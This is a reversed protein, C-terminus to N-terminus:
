PDLVYESTVAISACALVQGESQMKQFNSMDQEHDRKAGFLFDEGTKLCQFIHNFEEDMGEVNKHVREVEARHEKEEKACSALTENVELVNKQLDRISNVMRELEVKVAQTENRAAALKHEQMKLELRAAHKSAELETAESLKEAQLRVNMDKMADIQMRLDSQRATARDIARRCERKAEKLIAENRQNDFEISNELGACAQHRKESVTQVLEKKESLRCQKDLVHKYEADRESLMNRLDLLKGELERREEQASALQMQIDESTSSSKDSESIVRQHEAEAKSIQNRLLKLEEKRQVIIEEVSTHHRSNRSVFGEHERIKESAAMAFEHEQDIQLLLKCQEKHEEELEFMVQGLQVEVRTLQQHLQRIQSKFPNQEGDNKRLVEKLIVGQQRTESIEGNCKEISNQLEDYRKQMSQVESSSMRARGQSQSLITRFNDM